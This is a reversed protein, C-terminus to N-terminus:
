SYLYIALDSLYPQKNILTLSVSDITRLPGQFQIRTNNNSKNQNIITNTKHINNMVQLIINESLQKM